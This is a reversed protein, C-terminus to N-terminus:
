KKEEYDLVDNISSFFNPNETIFTQIDNFWIIIAGPTDRTASQVEILKIVNWDLMFNAQPFEFGKKTLILYSTHEIKKFFHFM